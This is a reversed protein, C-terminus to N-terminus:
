FTGTPWPPEQGKAVKEIIHAHMGMKLRRGPLLQM